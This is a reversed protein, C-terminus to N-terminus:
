SSYASMKVNILCLAIVCHNNGNAGKLGSEPFSERLKIVVSRERFRTLLAALLYELCFTNAFDGKFFSKNVMVQSLTLTTASEGSTVNAHTNTYHTVESCSAVARHLPTLWKNDKANVRAGQTLLLSHSLTLFLLHWLLWMTGYASDCFTCFPPSSSFIKFFIKYFLYIFFSKILLLILWCHSSSIFHGHDGKPVVRTNFYGQLQM